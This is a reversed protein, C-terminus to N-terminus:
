SGPAFAIGVPVNRVWAEHGDKPDAPIDIRKVAGNVSMYQTVSGGGDFRVADTAGMQHLWDGMQRLTSGGVRFGGDNNDKGMTATVVWFHGSSNWGIAARPRFSMSSGACTSINVGNLLLRPGRGSASSILRNKASTYSNVFRVRQGVSLKSVLSAQSGFVQFVRVNSTSNPAIQVGSNKSVQRVVGLYDLAFTASGTTQSSVPGFNRDFVTAGSPHSGIYNVAEVYIKNAGFQVYGSPTIVDTELKKIIGSKFTFTIRNGVSFKKLFPIATGTAQFVTGMSPRVKTGKLYPRTVVNNRVLIGYSGQPIDLTSNRSTFAVISNAPISKINVGAVTVAKTGSTLLSPESYGTAESYTQNVYSLVNSGGDQTVRRAGPPPSYILEGKNIIASDPMSNGFDFYDSNIYTEFNRVSKALSKQSDSTGFKAVPTFMAYNSINGDFVSLRTPYASGAAHAPLSYYGMRGGAPYTAALTYTSISKLRPSTPCKGAAQADNPVFSLFLSFSAIAVLFRHKLLPLRKSM